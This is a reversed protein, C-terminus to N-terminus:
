SSGGSRIPRAQLAQTSRWSTLTEHAPTCAMGGSLCAFRLMALLYRHGSRLRTVPQRASTPGRGFPRGSICFSDGPCWLVGPYGIMALLRLGPARALAGAFLRHRVLLRRVEGLRATVEDRVV